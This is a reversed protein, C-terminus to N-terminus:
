FCPVIMLLSSYLLLSLQFYIAQKGHHDVFESDRKSTSWLWNPFHLEWFSYFISDTYELTFTINKETSSEM